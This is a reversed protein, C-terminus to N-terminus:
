GDLRHEALFTALESWAVSMAAFEGPYNPRLGELLAVGPGADRPGGMATAFARIVRMTRLVSGSAASEYETWHAELRRAADAHRGTRCDVVAHALTVVAPDPADASQPGREVGALRAEAASEDGALAEYLARNVADRRAIGM